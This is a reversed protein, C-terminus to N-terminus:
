LEAHDRLWQLRAENAYLGAGRRSNTHAEHTGDFPWDPDLGADCFLNVQYECLADAHRFDVWDTLNSCLGVMKFFNHPNDSPLGEQVWALMDRCFEAYMTRLQANDM